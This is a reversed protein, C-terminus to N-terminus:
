KLEKIRIDKYSAEAPKGGHIQLGIIGRQPIKPDKERYDVTKLGNVTIQIRDGECRIHIINWDHPKVVKKLMTQDGVVLSKRRRSEDYLEGWILNGGETGVDCQYGIVEFEKPIRASRFQIGANTGEGVLKCKLQLEFNSYERTTCLFENHKIRNKLSGAVIAGGEVRFIEKNGEWGGLTTGDFLPVFDDAAFLTPTVFASTASM